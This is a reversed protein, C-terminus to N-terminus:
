VYTPLDFKDAFLEILFISVSIQKTRDLCRAFVACLPANFFKEVSRRRLFSSNM